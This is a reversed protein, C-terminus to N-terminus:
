RGEASQESEDRSLSEESVRELFNRSASIQEAELIVMRASNTAIPRAQQREGAWANAALAEADGNLEISEEIMRKNRRDKCESQVGWYM